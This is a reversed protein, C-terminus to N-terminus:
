DKVEEFEVYEGDDETFVKKKDAQEGQLYTNEQAQQSYNGNTQKQFHTYNFDGPKIIKFWPLQIGFLSLVKSVVLLLAVGVFLLLALIMFILCGFFHM